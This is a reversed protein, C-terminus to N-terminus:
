DALFKVILGKGIFSNDLIYREVKIFFNLSKRMEWQYYCIFFDENHILINKKLLMYFIKM